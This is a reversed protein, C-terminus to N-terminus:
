WLDVIKFTVGLTTLLHGEFQNTSVIEYEPVNNHVHEHIEKGLHGMFQSSLNFSLRNTCNFQFGFGGQVASSLRALSNQQNSIETFKSYDFCHGAVVYPQIIKTNGRLYYMVSWGIHFDERKTVGDASPLYDAFWDTSVRDGLQFRFNGGYGLTATQTHANFSSLTSRSGLSFLGSYSKKLKPFDSVQANVSFFVFLYLFSLKKM